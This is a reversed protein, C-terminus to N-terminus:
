VKGNRRNRHRKNLANKIFDLSYRYQTCTNYFTLSDVTDIATIISLQCRVSSRSKVDVELDFIRYLM